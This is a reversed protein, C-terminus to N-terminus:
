SKSASRKVQLLTAAFHLTWIGCSHIDKQQPVEVEDIELTGQGTKTM